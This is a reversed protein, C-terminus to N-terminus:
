SGPAAAGPPQDKREHAGFTRCTCGGGIEAWEGMRPGLALSHLAPHVHVRAGGGERRHRRGGAFRAVDRAQPPLGLDFVCKRVLGSAPSVTGIGRRRKRAKAKLGPRRQPPHPWLMEKGCEEGRLVCEM